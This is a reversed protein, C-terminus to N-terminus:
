RVNIYKHLQSSLRWEPFEKQLEFCREVNHKNVTMEHNVPQIYVCPHAIMQTTLKGPDFDDDVLIKLENAMVIMEVLADQKPSVSIWLKGNLRSDILSDRKLWEPYRTGSTELHIMYGHRRAKGILDSLDHILPEGGTICIHSQPAVNLLEESTRTYHKMYNTDCSFKRGDWLTCIARYQEGLKTQQVGTKGELEGVNCGALRIFRMATGTWAGEGQVSDFEEAIPLLQEEM